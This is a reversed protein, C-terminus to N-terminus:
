IYISKGILSRNFRRIYVKKMLEPFINLKLDMIERKQKEIIKDREAIKIRQLEIIKNQRNIRCQNQEKKQKNKKKMYGKFTDINIIKHKKVCQSGVMISKGTINNTIINENVCNGTQGCVCQTEPINTEEDEECDPPTIMNLEQISHNNENFVDNFNNCNEIDAIWSLAIAFIDQYVLTKKCKYNKKIYKRFQEQFIEYHSFIDETTELKEVIFEKQAKRIFVKFHNDFILNTLNIDGKKTHITAM